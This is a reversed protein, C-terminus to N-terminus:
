ILDQRDLFLVVKFGTETNCVEYPISLRELNRKVIYLGLGTGSVSKDRSDSRTYFPEFLKPLEGEPILFCQNEIELCGNALKIHIVGHEPTYRVANGILNTIARYLAAPETEIVLSNIETYIQLEKEKILIEYETLIQSILKDVETEIVKGALNNDDTKSAALIEKVLFSLKEVQEKCKLLYKEKDKYVGINDIMGELMGNLAAIPTKLEHSASQMMETKSQELRNVKEMESKLSGITESLSQYLADMNESLLGLEDNTRIGSRVDPEMNKMRVATASLELIPKTLQRAYLWALCLGMVSGVALVYPMLSLIVGKAEEIPQLTGKVQINGVFESGIDAEFFMEEGAEYLLYASVDNERVIVKEGQNDLQYMEEILSDLDSDEIVEGNVTLRGNEYNANKMSVFPTSLPLIPKGNPGITVVMVNYEDIFDAILEGSKKQDGSKILNQKLQHIGSKLSEEKKHLYYSPMSFYLISFSIVTVLVILLAAFLFTRRTIGAKKQM